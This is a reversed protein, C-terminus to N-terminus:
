LADCYDYVVAFEHRDEYRDPRPGYRRERTEPGRGCIPCEEITIFYWCKRKARM